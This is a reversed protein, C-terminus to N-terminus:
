AQATKRTRKGRRKPKEERPVRFAEILTATPRAEVEMAEVPGSGRLLRAEALLPRGPWEVLDQLTQEVRQLMAEEGREKRVQRWDLGPGDLLDVLSVQILGGAKRMPAQRGWSLSWRGTLRCYIRWHWDHQRLNLTLATRDFLWARGAQMSDWLEPHLRYIPVEGAGRLGVTRDYTLLPLRQYIGGAMGERKSPKADLMSVEIEAQTWLQLHERWAQRQKTSMRAPDIGRHRAITAPTAQFWGGRECAEILCAFLSVVSDTSVHGLLDLTGSWLDDSDVVAQRELWLTATPAPPKRRSRSSRTDHDILRQRHLDSWSVSVRTKTAKVRGSLQDIVQEASVAASNRVLQRRTEMPMTSPLSGAVMGTLSSPVRVIGRGAHQLSRAAQRNRQRVAEHWRRREVPDIASWDGDRIVEIRLGDVDVFARDDSDIEVAVRISFWEVVAESGNEAEMMFAVRLIDPLWRDSRVAADQLQLMRKRVEGSPWRWLTGLPGGLERTVHGSANVGGAIVVFGGTEVPDSRVIIRGGGQTLM